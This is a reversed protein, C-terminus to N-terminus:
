LLTQTLFCQVDGGLGLRLSAGNNLVNDHLSPLWDLRVCSATNPHDRWASAAASTKSEARSSVFPLSWCRHKESSPIIPAAKIKTQGWEEGRCPFDRTLLEALLFPPKNIHIDLTPGGKCTHAWCLINPIIWDGPLLPSPCNWSSLQGPGRQQNRYQAIMNLMM